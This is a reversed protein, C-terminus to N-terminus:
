RGRLRTGTGVDDRDVYLTIPISDKRGGWQKIRLAHMKTM